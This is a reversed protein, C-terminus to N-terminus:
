RSLVKWDGTADSSDMRKLELVERLKQDGRVQGGGNIMLVLPFIHESARYGAGSGPRLFRKDIAELM